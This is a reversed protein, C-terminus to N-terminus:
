HYFLLFLVIRKFVQYPMRQMGARITQIEFLAIFYFCVKEVLFHPSFNHLFRDITYFVSSTLLVIYSFLTHDEYYIKWNLCNSLPLRFFILAEVSNSGM